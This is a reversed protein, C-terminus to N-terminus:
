RSGRRSGGQRPRTGAARLAAQIQALLYTVLVEPLCENWKLTRTCGNWMMLILLINDQAELDRPKFFCNKKLTAPQTTLLIIIAPKLSAHTTCPTFGVAGNGTDVDALNEEGDAAPIDVNGDNLLCEATRNMGALKTISKATLTM